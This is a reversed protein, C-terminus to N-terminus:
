GLRPSDVLEIYAYHDNNWCWSLFKMHSLGHNEVSLRAQRPNVGSGESAKALKAAKSFVNEEYCDPNVPAGIDSNEEEFIRPEIEYIEQVLGNRMM